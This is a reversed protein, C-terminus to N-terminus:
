LPTIRVEWLDGDLRSAELVFADYDHVFEELEPVSEDLEVGDVVLERDMGQLTLTIEDGELGPLEFAEIKNAAVGWRERDQRVAVVRYPPDLQGEVAGALSELAGDGEEILLTEDPLIVFVARDGAVEPAVTTAVADWERARHVGHIGVHTERFNARPDWQVPQGGLGAERALKEHIPEDRRWFPM